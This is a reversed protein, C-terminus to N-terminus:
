GLSKFINHPTQTDVQNHNRNRFTLPRRLQMGVQTAQAKFAYLYECRKSCRFDVRSSRWKVQYGLVREHICTHFRAQRQDPPRLAEVLAVAQNWDEGALAERVQELVVDVDVRDM